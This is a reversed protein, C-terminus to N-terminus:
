DNCVYSIEVRMQANDTPNASKLTVVVEADATTVSDVGAAVLAGGNLITRGAAAIDVGAAIGDLDIETGDSVKRLGFDATVSAGFAGNSVYSDALIRSGKPLILGSAFTDNQAWAATAPTTFVLVRRKGQVSPLVKTGAAMATKQVSNIEAM